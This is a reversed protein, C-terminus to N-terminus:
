EHRHRKVNKTMHAHTRPKPGPADKPVDLFREDTLIRYLTRRSVGLILAAAKTDGGVTLADRIRREWMAPDLIRLADLPTRKRNTDRTAM